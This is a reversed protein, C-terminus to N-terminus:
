RELLWAFGDLTDQEWKKTEPLQKFNHWFAHPLGPYVDLRTPIGEAKLMENYVLLEDRGTDAGCVQSYTRPMGKHGFEGMDAGSPWIMPSSLKSNPDRKYSREILARMGPPLTPSNIEKEQGQSLLREHYKQPLMDALKPALRVAPASLWNGTIPPQLGSDRALHTVVNTINGGASIGGVVFGQTPDAHLTTAAHEAVWEVADRGDAIGTPFPHEPALRYTPTVVVANFRKVLSRSLKAMMVPSGLVFGGGYFLVVLPCGSQLATPKAPLYVRLPLKFGDEAPAHHFEELVDADKVDAREQLAVFQRLTYLAEGDDDWDLDFDFDKRLEAYQKTPKALDRIQEPTLSMFDFDKDM